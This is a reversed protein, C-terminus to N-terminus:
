IRRQEPNEDGTKLNSWTKKYKTDSMRKATVEKRMSTNWTYAMSPCAPDCLDHMTAYEMKFLVEIIHNCCFGSGAM